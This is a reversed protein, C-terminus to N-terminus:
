HTDMGISTQGGPHKVSRDYQKKKRNGVDDDQGQWNKLLGLLPLNVTRFLLSESLTPMSVAAPDSLTQYVHHHRDIVTGFSVPFCFLIHRRRQSVTPPPTDQGARGQRAKCKAEQGRQAKTTVM